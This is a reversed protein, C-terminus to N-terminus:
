FAFSRNQQAPKSDEVQEDEIKEVKLLPKDTKECTCQVLIRGKWLSAIEPNHNMADSIKGSVGLPAGKVNKWDYVGDMKGKNGKSDPLIDKMDFNMAGILEDSTLDWDYLKFVIRGGIL